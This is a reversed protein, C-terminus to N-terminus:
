TCTRLPACPNVGNCTHFSYDIAGGLADTSVANLGPIGLVYIASTSPMGVHLGDLSNHKKDKVCSVFNNKRSQFQLHM